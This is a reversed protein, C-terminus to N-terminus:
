ERGIIRLTIVVGLVVVLPAIISIPLFYGLYNPLQTVLQGTLRIFYAIDEFFGVLFNFAEQIMEGIHFIMEKIEGFNFM